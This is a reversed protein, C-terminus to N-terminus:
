IEEEYGCEIAHEKLAEGLTHAEDITLFYYRRQLKSGLSLRIQERGPHVPTVVASGRHHQDYASVPIETRQLKSGTM